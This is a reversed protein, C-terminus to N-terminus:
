GRPILEVLTRLVEDGSTRWKQETLHGSVEMGIIGHAGTMLLAGYRHADQEGVLDAVIALFADQSREAARALAAPDGAPATFMLRYLHPRSRGVAILASLGDRLKAAPDLAPDAALAAVAEGIRDWSEVAIATLLSDKDAFHRYPAGRSVGARAGVERLTVAEPGGEDLLQAAAALLDRRTAAASEIRTIV